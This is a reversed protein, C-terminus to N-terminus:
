GQKAPANWEDHVTFSRVVRASPNVIRAAAGADKAPEERTWPKGDKDLVEVTLVYGDEPRTAAPLVGLNVARAPDEVVTWDTITTRNPQDKKPMSVLQDLRWRVKSGATRGIRGGQLDFLARVPAGKPEPVVQQGEHPTSVVLTPSTQANDSGPAARNGADCGALVALVPLLILRRM